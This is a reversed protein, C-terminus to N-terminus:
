PMFRISFSLEIFESVMLWGGNIWWQKRDLAFQATVVVSDDEVIVVGPFSIQKSIWKMTLVGVIQGWGVEQIIFSATPHTAVEFFEDSKLVQDLGSWAADLTTITEMDLILGGGVVIGDVVQIAWQRLAVTGQHEGGIKRGIWNITNWPWVMYTTAGEVPILEAGDSQQISAIPGKPVVMEQAAAGTPATVTEPWQQATRIQAITAPDPQQPALYWRSGALVVIFILILLGIRHTKTM